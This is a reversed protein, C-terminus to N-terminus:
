VLITLLGNKTTLQAFVCLHMKCLWRDLPRLRDLLLSLFFGKDRPVLFHAIWMIIIFDLSSYFFAFTQRTLFSCWSALNIDPV